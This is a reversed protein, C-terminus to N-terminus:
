SVLFGEIRKHLSQIIQRLTNKKGDPALRLAKMQWRVAEQYNRAEAHAAALLSLFVPSKHGAAKSLRRALGVARRGDRVDADPCAALLWALNNAAPAFNPDLQLAEKFHAAADKFRGMDQLTNALSNHAVPYEPFLRLAEEYQEAAEEFRGLGQLANALDNHAIPHNPSLRLAEKCQEAASAYEQRTHELEAFKMRLLFDDPRASLRERYAKAADALVSPTVRGNLQRVEAADRARREEPFPPRGMLKAMAEMNRLRAHPTFVILAACRELSPPDADATGDKRVSPPLLSVVKRFVAAALAYNGEFRLHVHEYLLETGHIGGPADKGSVANAADVVHVDQSGLEAATARIIGNIRTDARFRLADLDRAQIFHTQARGYQKLELLCNGVRFHLEAFADDIKAAARYRQLAGAHDGSAQLAAGEKCLSDWLKKEDAVLGPGHVSAFPPLDKLNTIVTSLIVKAGAQHAEDCIDRLNTRFNEYMSELNPDKATVRNKLFMTMGGWKKPGRPGGLINALLQGSRTTKLSANMRIAWLAPNYGMIVTGPGHPGVVENNGMYIIYLDGDFRRCDRAIQYAVHSNIATMATNVVEFRTGSFRDNLMAELIRAFSFAKDPTGHAASGGFVFIRYTDKPKTRSIMAPITWRNLARGFFRIGFDRNSVYAEGDESEIWYSTPHGYNFLRLTGELLGIM